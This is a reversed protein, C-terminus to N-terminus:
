KKHELNERNLKARKPPINGMYPRYQDAMKFQNSPQYDGSQFHKKYERYHDFENTRGPTSKYYDPDSIKEGQANFGVYNINERPGMLGPQISTRNLSFPNNGKFNSMNGSNMQYPGGSKQFYPQDLSSQQVNRDSHHTTQQQEIPTIREPGTSASHQSIPHGGNAAEPVAPANRFQKAAPNITRPPGIQGYSDQVSPDFEYTNYKLFNDPNRKMVERKEREYHPDCWSGFKGHRPEFGPRCRYHGPFGCTQCTGCSNQGPQCRCNRINQQLRPQEHQMWEEAMGHNVDPQQQSNFHQVNFLNSQPQPDSRLSRAGPPMGLRPAQRSDSAIDDKPFTVHDGSSMPPPPQFSNMNSMRHGMISDNIWAARQMQNQFGGASMRQSQNIRDQQELTLQTPSFNGQQQSPFANNVQPNFRAGNYDTMANRRQDVFQQNNIEHLNRSDSSFQVDLPAANM